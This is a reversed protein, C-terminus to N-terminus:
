SRLVQRPPLFSAKQILLSINENLPNSGRRTEEVTQYVAADVLKAVVTYSVLLTPPPPLIQVQSRRAAPISAAPVAVTETKRKGLWFVLCSHSSYSTSSMGAQRDYVTVLKPSHRIFHGFHPYLFGLLTSNQLPHPWGSM